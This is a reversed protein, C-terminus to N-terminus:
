QLWYQRFACMLHRGIQLLQMLIKLFLQLEGDLLILAMGGFAAKGDGPEFSSVQYPKIGSVDPSLMRRLLQVVLVQAGKGDNLHDGQM